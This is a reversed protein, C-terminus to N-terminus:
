CRHLRGAALLVVGRVGGDRIIVNSGVGLPWVPVDDPLAAMFSALDDVDAPRFLVDAPGGVGFWTFRALPADFAIRGKVRPLADRFDTPHFRHREDPGEGM